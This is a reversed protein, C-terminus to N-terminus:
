EGAAHRGARRGSFICDAISLGSMYLHSCIGVATRGAAYLGEIENGDSRKVQGTEENLVLGGMTLVTCPLLRAGLSVDIVHYPAELGPVDEPAKGFPDELEGNAIRNYEDITAELRANDFGLKDSLEESNDFKKKGFLMNLAALQWQFPLVTGPTSQRWAKKVLKGDLILWGTGDNHEVMADGITAGYCSENVYREGNANVIIGQSWALPPNIFRWATGRDMRDTAGGVSEGLRIGGGDDAPTGLPMGPRFKRCHHQVMNRNFIFGGASLVVGRRAKYYRVHREKAEIAAAKAGYRVALKKALHGGPLFFPYIKGIREARALYKGHRRYEDSDAILQLAKVGIVRGDRNTILQRVETKKQLQVGSALASHTMPGTISVGLNVASRGKRIVGRHGRAAPKAVAKYRPLLSNDSHYLFYKVSPYSTKKKWVPGSFRVGHSKLWDITEPSDECFKMLTEDKVVGQTELKLYDFMAQPTDEEGVEKQASTGGGAYIVGGSLATAGGGEARDLAMVQLGRERAELAAAAGAGGWGVVVLDTDHDWNIEAADDIVHPAEVVSNWNPDDPKM